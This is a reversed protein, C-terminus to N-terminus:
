NDISLSAGHRMTNIAFSRPHVFTKLYSFVDAVQPADFPTLVKRVRKEKCEGDFFFNKVFTIEEVTGDVVATELFPSWFNAQLLDRPIYQVDCEKEFIELRSILEKIKNWWDYAEKTTALVLIKSGVSLAAFCYCLTSVSPHANFSFFIASEQTLSHDNFSIQGPIFRNCEKKNLFDELTKRLGQEYLHIDNYHHQFDRTFSEMVTFVHHIRQPRLPIPSEKFIKETSLSPPSRHFTKVYDVSGAKPGTGSLQFGGFPEVAVRAGTISRNVYINGAKMKSSLYDIDDQSQSFIGGTLAYHTANFIALAEDLTKYDTLHLVPGFLERQLFSDECFARAKDIELFAPGVLYGPFTNQTKDVHIKGGYRQIEIVAEQTQRQIREKDERSILPNIDTSLDWCAGITLDNIAEKLRHALRNKIKESVIVRSCASCKQGAHAFASYLIGEVTEDLEANETVIIGNKGGMETISLAPYSLGTRKNQYMRKSVKHQIELGVNKSGTFVVTSVREDAILKAGVDEGLGPLHILTKPDLGVEYFIDVLVQATLPTQEASKLIVTNGSVLAAATMGCPIALPFNWPSVVATVGHSSISSSHEQLKKEERAYFNLFDVAEDVDGLAEPLTKGSEYSILGALEGRRILFRCAVQVLLSTRKKWSDPWFGQCYHEHSLSVAKDVDEVRAFRIRGVCLSPDSPCVINRLEGSLPFPSPYTKGLKKRFKEVANILNDYERRIYLRPPCVNVFNGSDEKLIQDQMMAAKQLKERHVVEPRKPLALGIHSRMHTLVGVQSSNEMIRRVLYAMGTILPGIPIYNRVAWDMKVLGTSLGEYTMHLCQHEISLAKNFHRKRLVECFVHDSSNHSGLCLQVAPSHELIRFVLQRFNLDTEEKNLFEPAEFGLAWAETTEADWYAGKVLRIPLTIKREKALAIIEDLHDWADRLYGQLVLGVDAYDKLEATTLLVRKTIHFVTDRHFYHEADINIFVQHEKAKKFIDTLRPALDAYTERFAWPKFDSCLASVKISIHAKKIGAKNQEGKKIHLSLGKILKLVEDRYSDAEKKSVVLEGLQDLTVDRGSAFLSIMSDKAKEITEGAIFRRAMLRVMGRTVRGLINPPVYSLFFGLAKFCWYLPIPLPGFDGTRSARRAAKHDLCPRRLTELLIRKIEIGKDDHDLSALTSVFKLLHIRLLGYSTTLSLAKNSLSELLTPKYSRIEKLLKETVPSMAQIVDRYRPDQDPGELLHPWQRKVALRQYVSPFTAVNLGQIKQVFINVDEKDCLSALFLEQGPRSTLRLTQEDYFLYCLFPCGGLNVPFAFNDFPIDLFPAVYEKLDEIGRGEHEFLPGYVECFAVIWPTGALPTTVINFLNM